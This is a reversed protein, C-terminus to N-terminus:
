DKFLRALYREHNQLFDRTLSFHETDEYRVEAIGRESFEYIRAGPYALLMPSHTSIIFQSQQQVLDHIVKLFALQRQPSLAAEPEDLLYFGNAWFRNTVLALFAEGHSLEHHAVGGHGAVADPNKEIETAVNFFSEARLFYGTKPRRVGRALRLHQHLPSESRRTAFNFNKSGGEANFGLGVALAEMITSKGSGNEGVFFTVQQDFRLSDIAQVAPISFPYLQENAIGERLLTVRKLFTDTM